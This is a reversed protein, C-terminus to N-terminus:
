DEVRTPAPLDGDRARTILVPLSWSPRACGIVPLLGPSRDAFDTGPSSVVSCSIVVVRGFRRLGLQRLGCRGEVCPRSVPQASRRNDGTPYSSSATRRRPSTGAPTEDGKSIGSANTVLATSTVSAQNRTGGLTCSQSNPSCPGSANGTTTAERSAPRCETSSRRRGPRWRPGTRARPRPPRGFTTSARLTTSVERTPTGVAIMASTITNWPWGTTFTTTM